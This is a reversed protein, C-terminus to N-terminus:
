RPRRFRFVVQDTVGRIGADFVSRTHDDNPNRLVESQAELIFGAAEIEQQMLAPDIRHLTETDRLGSGKDAVHDIVLFIGGPRLANFIAKNLATVDAPGLFSDHLDHYNQATWILDLQEPMRFDALTGTLVTVNAYGPDGGVAQAGAIESPPCNAIQEAPIYAYVRGTPGVVDSLIRTFYANGPMFDAIRAGSRVGAFAILTRPRRTADLKVQEVPRRPDSLATAIDGAVPTTTAAEVKSASLTVGLLGMFLWRAKISM